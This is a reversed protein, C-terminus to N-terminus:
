NLSVIFVNQDIFKLIDDNDYRRLQLHKYICTHIEREIYIHVYLHRYIYIYLIYM